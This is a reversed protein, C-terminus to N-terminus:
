VRDSYRDLAGFVHKRWRGRGGAYVNTDLWGCEADAEVEDMDRYWAKPRGGEGPSWRYGRAKLADKVAYPSALAWVRATRRASAALLAAMPLGGGPFPTALVHLGAQADEDAVHGGFFEGCHRWLLYELKASRIGHDAWPVERHSCAWPLNRFVPLRREMMPRDFGANHAVVLSSRWALATIRADDIRRGAVDADSIGTLATIEPPIRRGPDEFYMRTRGVGFVRGDGAFEFPVAALQIIRDRATDLGTTEVDVYLGRSLPTGDPDAYRARPTFRRAVRHLGSAEVAAAMRELCAPDRSAAADVGGDMEAKGTAPLRDDAMREMEGRGTRRVGLGVEPGTPLGREPFPRLPPM